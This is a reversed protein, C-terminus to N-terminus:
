GAYKRYAEKIVQTSMNCYCELTTQVSAHGLIKQVHEAPAGRNIMNTAMTRRLKHPHLHLNSVKNTECLKSMMARVGSETLREHPEKLGVFLAPNSDTRQELYWMLHVKAKGNLYVPREKKGKGYVICQGNVFDIDSRNLKVLEGVRMGTSVLIDIIALDREKDCSCRIMEAQEDSLVEKVRKETKVIHIKLMPNRSIYEETTLWKFLSMLMHIRNNLTTDSNKRVTKCHALYMRVDNTTVDRFNKNVASFFVRYECKYAKITKDSKGEISLTALFMNIKDSNDDIMTSIATEEQVLQYKGLHMYLVTKLENTQDQNLSKYMAATIGLIVEDM